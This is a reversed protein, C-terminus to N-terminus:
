WHDRMHRKHLVRDSLMRRCERWYRPLKIEASVRKAPGDSRLVHFCPHRVWHDVRQIRRSTVAIKLSPFIRRSTEECAERIATLITFRRSPQTVHMSSSISQNIGDLYLLHVYSIASRKQMYKCKCNCTHWCLEVVWASRSRGWSSSNPADAKSRKSAVHQCWSVERCVHYSFGRNTVKFPTALNCM